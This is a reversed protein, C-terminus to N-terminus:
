GQSAGVPILGPCRFREPQLSGVERAEQLVEPNALGLGTQGRIRGTDAETCGGDRQGVSGLDEALGSAGNGVRRGPGQNM